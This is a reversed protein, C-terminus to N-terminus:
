TVVRKAVAVCRGAREVARKAENAAAHFEEAKELYHHVQAVSVARTRSSKPM